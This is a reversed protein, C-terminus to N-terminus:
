VTFPRQADFSANPAGIISHVPTQDEPMGAVIKEHFAAYDGKFKGNKWVKKLRGTFVGNDDDDGALQDDKCGSILRVTAAIPKPPNPLKKQIADYFEHSEAYAKVAAERPMYRFRLNTTGYIALKQEDSLDAATHAGADIARTASGSHCSDSIVLIRVGAAFEPWLARLEDDLLQGDYLCWTEDTDDIDGEIVTAGPDDKEDGSVDLVQGGHGAYTLLFIDGKRLRAAADRVAQYVADRTADPSKLLTALFGQEVALAHMDDADRECGGLPDNWGDYCTPDVDNIGIHLSVGTAM